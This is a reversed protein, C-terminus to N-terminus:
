VKYASFSKLPPNQQTESAKKVPEVTFKFGKSAQIVTLFIDSAM